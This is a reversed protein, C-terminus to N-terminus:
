HWVKAILDNTSKVLGTQCIQLENKIQVGRPHTVNDMQGGHTIEHQEWEQRNSTEAIM